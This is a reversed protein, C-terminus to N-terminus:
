LTVTAPLSTLSADNATYTFSDTGFFNASPTYLLGQPTVAASGHAPQTAVAYTLADGDVDLGLPTVTVATDEDTTASRTSVTPASNVARVTIAVTAPASTVQGDNA